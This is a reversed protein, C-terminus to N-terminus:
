ELENGRPKNYYEYMSRLIMSEPNEQFLTGSVTRMSNHLNGVEKNVEVSQKHHQEVKDDLRSTYSFSLIFISTIIGIAVGFGKFISKNVNKIMDSGSDTLRKDISLSIVELEKSLKEDIVECIIKRDTETM